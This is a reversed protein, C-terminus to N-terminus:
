LVAEDVGLRNRRHRLAPGCRKRAVCRDDHKSLRVHTAEYPATEGVLAMSHSLVGYVVEVVVFALNLVIGIAFAKRFDSPAHGHGEGHEHDHAM